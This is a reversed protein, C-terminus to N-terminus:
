LRKSCYEEATYKWKSACREYCRTGDRGAMVKAFCKEECADLLERCPGGCIRQKDDCEHYCAWNADAAPGYTYKDFAYNHDQDCQRRCTMSEEDCAAVRVYGEHVPEPPSCAPLTLITLIIPVLTVSMRSSWRM